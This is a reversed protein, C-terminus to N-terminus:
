CTVVVSVFVKLRGALAVDAARRKAVRSTPVPMQGPALVDRALDVAVFQRDELPDTGEVFEESCVKV